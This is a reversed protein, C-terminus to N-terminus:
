EWISFLTNKGNQCTVSSNCHMCLFQLRWNLFIFKWSFLGSSMSLFIALCSLYLLNERLYWVALGAADLLFDWFYFSSSPGQALCSTTLSSFTLIPGIQLMVKYYILSNLIYDMDNNLIVHSGGTHCPKVILGTTPKTLYHLVCTRSVNIRNIPIYWYYVLVTKKWFPRIKDQM